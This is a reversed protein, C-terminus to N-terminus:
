RHRGVGVDLTAEGELQCARNQKYIVQFLKM